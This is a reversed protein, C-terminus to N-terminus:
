FLLFLNKIIEQCFNGLFVVEIRIEAKTASHLFVPVLFFGSEVSVLDPKEPVLLRFCIPGIRLHKFKTLSWMELNGANEHVVM